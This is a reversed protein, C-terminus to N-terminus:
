PIGAARAGGRVFNHFRGRGNGSGSAWMQTLGTGDPSSRPRNLFTLAAPAFGIFIRNEHKRPSFPLSLSDVLHVNFFVGFAHAAKDLRRLREGHALAVLLERRQM